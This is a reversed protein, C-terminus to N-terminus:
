QLRHEDIHDARAEQDPALLDPQEVTHEALSETEADIKHDQRPDDDGMIGIEVPRVAEHVMRPQELMEM